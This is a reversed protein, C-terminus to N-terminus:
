CSLETPSHIYRVTMREPTRTMIAWHFLSHIGSDTREIARTIIAWHSFLHIECDTREIARTGIAWAPPSHIYRVTQGRRPGPRSLEPPSHIYRVTQGRRPGPEIGAAMASYKLPNKGSQDCEPALLFGELTACQMPFVSDFVWYGLKQVVESVPCPVQATGAWEQCNSQWPSLCFSPSLRNKHQYNLLGISYWFRRNYHWDAFLPVDKRSSLISINGSFRATGIFSGRM